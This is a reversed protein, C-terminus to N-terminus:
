YTAPGVFQSSSLNDFFPSAGEFARKSVRLMLLQMIPASFPRHSSAM